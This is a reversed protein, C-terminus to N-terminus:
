GNTLGDGNFDVTGTGWAAILGGLDAADVQLDRNLDAKCFIGGPQTDVQAAAVGSFGLTSLMLGALLRRVDTRSNM